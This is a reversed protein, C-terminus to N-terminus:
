GAAPYVIAQFDGAAARIYELSERRRCFSGAPDDDDDEASCNAGGSPSVKSAAAKECRRGVEGVEQRRREKRAAGRVMKM